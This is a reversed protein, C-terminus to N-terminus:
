RAATQWAILELRYPKGPLAHAAEGQVAVSANIMVTLGGAAFDAKDGAQLFRTEGDLTVQVGLGNQRVEGTQQAVLRYAPLDLTVPGDAGVLAHIFQDEPLTIAMVDNRHFPDGRRMYIQAHDGAKARLPRGAAKALLRAEGLNPLNLVLSDGATSTVQATGRYAKPLDPLAQAAYGTSVGAGLRESGTAMADAAIRTPVRQVVADGGYSANSLGTVAPSKAAARWLKAQEASTALQAQRMALDSDSMTLREATACAALSSSILVLLFIRTM